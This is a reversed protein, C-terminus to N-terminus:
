LRCLRATLSNLMLHLNYEFIVLHAFYKFVKFMNKDYDGFRM